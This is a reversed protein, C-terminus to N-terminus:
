FSLTSILALKIALPYFAISCTKLSIFLTVGFVVLYDKLKDNYKLCTFYTNFNTINKYSLYKM